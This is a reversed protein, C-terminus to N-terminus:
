FYFVVLLKICLTKFFTEKQSIYICYVCKSSIIWSTCQVYCYINNYSNFVMVSFIKLTIFVAYFIFYKWFPYLKENIKYDNTNKLIEVILILIIRIRDIELLYILTKNFKFMKKKHFISIGLYLFFHMSSSM